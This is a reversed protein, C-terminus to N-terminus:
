TIGSLRTDRPFPIVHWSLFIVRLITNGEMSNGYLVSACLHAVVRLSALGGREVRSMRSATMEAVDCGSGDGIGRQDGRSKSWPSHQLVLNFRDKALASNQFRCGEHHRDEEFM